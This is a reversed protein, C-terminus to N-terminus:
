IPCIRIFYFDHMCMWIYACNNYCLNKEVEVTKQPNQLNKAPFKLFYGFERESIFYINDPFFTVSESKQLLRCNEAGKLLIRNM